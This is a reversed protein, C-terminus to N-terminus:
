EIWYVFDKPSYIKPQKPKLRRIVLLTLVSLLQGWRILFNQGNIRAFLLYWVYALKAGLPSISLFTLLVFFGNKLLADEKSFLGPGFRAQSFLRPATAVGNEVLLKAQLQSLGVALMAQGHADLAQYAVGLAHYIKEPMASSPLNAVVIKIFKQWDIGRRLAYTNFFEVISCGALLQSEEGAVKLCLYALIEEPALAYIEITAEVDLEITTEHLTGQIIRKAMEKKSLNDAQDPSWAPQATQVQWEVKLNFSYGKLAPENTQILSEKQWFGDKQEFGYKQLATTLHPLEDALIILQIPNFPPLTASPFIVPSSQGTAFVFQGGEGKFALLISDIMQYLRMAIVAQRRAIREFKQRVDRPPAAALIIEDLYSNLTALNGFLSEFFYAKFYPPTLAKFVDDPIPPTFLIKAWLLAYYITAEMGYKKALTILDAWSLEQGYAQIAAAIDALLILETYGHGELHLCLHFLMDAPAPILVSHEAMSISRANRWMRNIDFNLTGEGYVDLGKNEIDWQLDLWVNDHSRQFQYEVDYTIHYYCDAAPLPHYGLMSLNQAAKAFASKHILLDLDGIPHLNIDPYAFQMLGLEKLAMLAIKKQAFTEFIEAMVRHMRETRRCNNQYLTELEVRVKDPLNARNQHTQDFYHTVLRLNHYLLLAVSHQISAGLVYDWDLQQKLLDSIATIHQEDLQTRACLILLQDEPCFNM